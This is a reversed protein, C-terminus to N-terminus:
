RLRRYTTPLLHPLKSALQTCICLHPCNLPIHRRMGNSEAMIHHDFLYIAVNTHAEQWGIYYQGSRRRSLLYDALSAHLFNIELKDGFQDVRILINQLSALNVRIGAEVLAFDTSHSSALAFSLATVINPLHKPKISAIIGTYLADLQAFPNEDDPQNVVVGRVVDLRHLPDDDLAGVYKVVTAPYIFHGSSKKVLTTIVAEGPWDVPFDVLKQHARRIAKFSLELFHRIDNKSDYKLPLYVHISLERLPETEFANLLHLEPRCSILTACPYPVSQSFEALVELIRVQVSREICEDIGDIVLLHPWNRRETALVNACARKLPDLLLTRMQIRLSQFFITPDRTVAELIFEAVVPLKTAVQYAITPILHNATNRKEITRSFFFTSLLSSKSSYQNALTKAIATKGSGMPASLFYFPRRDRLSDVWHSLDNLIDKRTGPYCGTDDLGKANHVADPVTETSLEKLAQLVDLM